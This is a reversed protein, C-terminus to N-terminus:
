AVGTPGTLVDLGQYGIDLMAPSTLSCTLGISKWLASGSYTQSTYSQLTLTKAVPTTLTFVGGGADVAWLITGTGATTVQSDFVFQYKVTNPKGSASVSLSASSTIINGGITKGTGGAVVDFTAAAAGVDLGPSAINTSGDAYCDFSGSVKVLGPVFHLWKVGSSGAMPTAEHMDAQINLTYAYVNLAYSSSFTVNGLTPVQPTGLHAKIKGDWSHTGFINRAFPAGTSSVFTTRDHTAAKIDLGFESPKNNTSILVQTFDTGTGWSTVLGASNGTVIGM